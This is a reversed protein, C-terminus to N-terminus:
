KNNKNFEVKCYIKFKRLKSELKFNIEYSNKRGILKIFGFNIKIAWSFM